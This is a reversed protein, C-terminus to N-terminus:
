IVTSVGLSHASSLIHKILVDSQDQLSTWIAANKPLDYEYGLILTKASADTLVKRLQTWALDLATRPSKIPLDPVIIVSNM